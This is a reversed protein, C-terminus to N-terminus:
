FPIDDSQPQEVPEATVVPEDAPAQTEAKANPRRLFHVRQANVGFYPKYSGDDQQIDGADISGEVCVEAGKTLHTLVAEAQKDWCTVWFFDTKGASGDRKPPRNCALKFSALTTGNRDKRIPDTSLNGIATVNNMAM